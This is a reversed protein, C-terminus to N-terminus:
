REVHGVLSRGRENEFGLLFDKPRRYTYGLFAGRKRLNLAQRGITEDRLIKDRPRKREKKKKHTKEQGNGELEAKGNKNLVEKMSSAKPGDTQAGIDMVHVTRSSDLNNAAPDPAETEPCSDGHSSGDEVDSIPEEDEFYKTDEWSKVKPVFPPKRYHLEEWRIGRFFPHDKIDGADDPYVYYGQYNRSHKDAPRNLLEGPLRKSHVYDNLMYKRSCLRYEKEQLMQGILDIAEASILRDSAKEVPFYLTEPHKLIKVKTDHRTEAAFPTFGYLCEYLIVGVSWWDCRGDYLDGRIVEPAMYQSTGVVSRALKRMEKWNKWRLIDENPGPGRIEPAGDESTGSSRNSGKEHQLEAAKAAEKQDQSDGDVHIGLKKLLSHRHNNFYLQDHSWHGDFALGFDSIKLHGSASILFNDPKVDRHIWRLRHAEEICLVMEAVYWRTVDESLINKRILLGLFDGGVMYDMVLYLNNVDQFSAILPVIWRSKESAVLFDREARLHGEQCNRLMESKRIVKMAYVEKKMKSIDRRRSTRVDVASRLTEIASAKIYSLDSRPTARGADAVATKHSDMSKEKVLRVVGFSGKGLVKIVEYGAILVSEGNRLFNCRTKLVRDQRLYESEQRNWAQRTKAREESTLPLSYLKEELERYRQARPSDGSFISSFHTEFYIKATATAEVTLISPVVPPAENTHQLERDSSTCVLDSKDLTKNSGNLNEPKAFQLSTPTGDSTPNTSQSFPSSGSGSQTATSPDSDDQPEDRLKDPGVTSSQAQVSPITPIGPRSRLNARHVVTPQVFTMSLKQSLRHSLGPSSQSRRVRFLPHKDNTEALDQTQPVELYKGPCTQQAGERDVYPSIAALRSFVRSSGEQMYIPSPSNAGLEGYPTKQLPPFENPMATPGFSALDGGPQADPSGQYFGRRTSSRSDGSGRLKLMSLLSSSKRKIFAKVKEKGVSGAAIGDSTSTLSGICRTDADGELIVVKNPSLLGFFSRSTRIKRKQGTTM